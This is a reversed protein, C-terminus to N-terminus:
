EYKGRTIKMDLYTLVKTKIKKFDKTRIGADRQVKWLKIDEEDKLKADIINRCRRLQFNEVTEIIKNLYKKTKPLKDINKDLEVLIGAARGISSKTIRVSNERNILEKYKVKIISLNKKDRYCWDVKNNKIPKNKKSNLPINSFLWEKDRRYLYMYEKKCLQRIETRSLKSNMKVVRLIKNKYEETMDNLLTKKNEGMNKYSNKLYNIGFLRDFKIVTKPDCHMLMSLEKLNYKEEKLYTKLKYEWVEGFSKIRGVKYKDSEVKDPGKRSYVFGCKCTFTGVPVRTKYDQTIKLDTIINEKYHNSVTNLCPWPGKGFPTYDNNIERFFKRIDGLLFNILLIHRIPHVTRKLNRTIVRLWNYEYNNDIRSELLDLFDQGYFNVFEEYLEKQKVRRSCTVLGKEYLLNKYKGLVDNKHINTLDAQLLYYADQAIRYLEDYYKDATTLEYSLDLLEKDLRIFEIRSTNSKDIPYKKIKMGDHPCIYVGQLQHERHIYAEGYREIEKKACCPCYYIGVKKCVSGPVIGLKTYIGRGDKYKIEELLEAKRDKPLFPAYFPFITHKKIIGDSTYKDGLNKALAYINSGIALSPIVSRKGYMEELTDKYDINGIYYHYRAIASYILEDKYPDTFFHVM